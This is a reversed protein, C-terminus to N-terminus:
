ELRTQLQQWDEESMRQTFWTAMKKEENLLTSHPERSASPDCM